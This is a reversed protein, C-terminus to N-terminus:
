GDLGGPERPAWALGLLLKRRELADQGINQTLDPSRCRREAGSFAVKVVSFFMPCFGRARPRAACVGPARARARAWAPRDTAKLGAHNRNLPHSGRGRM